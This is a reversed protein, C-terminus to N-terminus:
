KKINRIYRKRITKFSEYDSYKQKGFYIKHLDNLYEFAEIDSDHVRCQQYFESVFGTTTTLSKIEEPYPRVNILNDKSIM